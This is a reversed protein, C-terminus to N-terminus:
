RYLTLAVEVYEGIRLEAHRLVDILDPQEDPPTRAMLRAVSVLVAPTDTVKYGLCTGFGAPVTEPALGVGIMLEEVRQRSLM